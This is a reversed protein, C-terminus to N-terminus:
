GSGTSAPGGIYGTYYHAGAYFDYYSQSRGVTFGAFQIFTREIYYRGGAQETTAWDYGARAYTRLTGYETQPRTDISTVFRNRFLSDNTDTRNNRAGGGSIYTTISGGANFDVEARVWGGIKICTDTGPIYFFGAGYISCVKVYEVPKAKVPLDAAQAGAVAVLGAASGRLLSKVMKM